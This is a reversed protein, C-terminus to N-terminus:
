YPTLVMAESCKFLKGNNVDVCYAGVTAGEGSLTYLYYKTGNITVPTADDLHYGTEIMVKSKVIVLGKEPTVGSPYNVDKDSDLSTGNSIFSNIDIVKSEESAANINDKPVFENVLVNMENVYKSTDKNKNYISIDLKYINNVVLLRKDGIDALFHVIGNKSKSKSKLTNLDINNFLKETKNLEDETLIQKMYSNNHINSKQLLLPMNSLAIEDKEESPKQLFETLADNSINIAAASPIFIEMINGHFDSLFTFSDGKGVNRNNNTTIEKYYWTFNDTKDEGEIKYTYGESKATSILKEMNVKLPFEYSNKGTYIPLIMSYWYQYKYQKIKDDKPSTLITLPLKGDKYLNLKEEVTKVNYEQSKQILYDLDATIQKNSDKSLRNLVAAIQFFDDIKSNPELSNIIADSEKSIYLSHDIQADKAGSSCSILLLSMGVM